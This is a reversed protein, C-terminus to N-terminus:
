KSAATPARYNLAANVIGAQLSNVQGEFTPRMAELLGSSSIAARLAECARVISAVDSGIAAAESDTLGPRLIRLAEPTM